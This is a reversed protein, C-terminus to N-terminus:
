HRLFLTREPPVIRSLKIEFTGGKVIDTARFAAIDVGGGILVKMM